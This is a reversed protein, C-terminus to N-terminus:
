DILQRYQDIFDVLNDGRNQNNTPLFLLLFGLAANKKRQAETLRNCNNPFNRLPKIRKFQCSCFRTCVGM